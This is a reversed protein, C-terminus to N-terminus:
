IRKRVQKTISPESVGFQDIRNRLVELTRNIADAAEDKLESIVDQNSEGKRGFYRNMDIDRAEFNQELVTFFDAGEQDVTAKTATIIDELQTDQNKAVNRLLQPLDAEYVLYTGGQLDLGQKIARKEVKEIKTNLEILDAASQLASEASDGSATERIRTELDGITLGDDIDLKTLGTLSEINAALEAEKQNLGSLQFTPYLSVGAVVLLALVLIIKTIHSRQM